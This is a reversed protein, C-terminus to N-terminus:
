EAWVLDKDLFLQAALSFLLVAYTLTTVLALVYSRDHIGASARSMLATLPWLVTTAARALWDLGRTALFAKQENALLLGVVLLYGAMNSGDRSTLASLILALASLTLWLALWTPVAWLVSPFEVTLRGGLLNAGAILLALAATVGLSSIVIAILLEARHRLRGILLYTTARNARGALLLTTLLCIIGIGVGAVTLFQPQDMGYEFAILGFALAAALPVIAALSFFLDRTLFLTLTWIRNM